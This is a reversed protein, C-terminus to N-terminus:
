YCYGDEGYMGLEIECCRSCMDGELADCVQDGCRVGYKTRRCKSRDDLHRLLLEKRDNSNDGNLIKYFVKKNERKAVELAFHVELMTYKKPLNVLESVTWKLEKLKTEFELQEKLSIEIDCCDRCMDGELYTFLSCDYLDYVQEGCRRCKNKGILYRTLIERRNKSDDGNLIMESYDDDDEKYALELAIHVQLKTYKEPIKVLESETWKLDMLFKKFLESVLFERIRNHSMLEM